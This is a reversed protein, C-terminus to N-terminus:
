RGDRVRMKVRMMKVYDSVASSYIEETLPLFRLTNAPHPLPEGLRWAEAGISEELKRRLEMMNKERVVLPAVIEKGRATCSIDNSVDGVAVLGAQTLRELGSSLEEYNLVAHNIHDAEAIVDRLGLRNGQSSLYIALLLWADSWRLKEQESM